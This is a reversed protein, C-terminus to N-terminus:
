KLKLMTYLDCRLVTRLDGGEEDTILNHSLVMSALRRTMNDPSNNAQEWLFANRAPVDLSNVIRLRLLSEKLEPYLEFLAKDDAMIQDLRSEDITGTADFETVALLMEMRRLYYQELADDGLVHSFIGALAMYNYIGALTPQMKGKRDIVSILERLFNRPMPQVVIKKVEGEDDLSGEYLRGESYDAMLAAFAEDREFTEYTRGAIAGQVNGEGVLAVIDAVIYDNLRLLPTNPERPIFRTVGGRTICLYQPQDRRLSSLSVSKRM